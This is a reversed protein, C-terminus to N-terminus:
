HRDQAKGEEGLPHHQNHRAALGALHPSPHDENSKYLITFLEINRISRYCENRLIWEIM